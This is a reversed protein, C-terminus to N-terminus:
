AAELEQLDYFSPVDPLDNVPDYTLRYRAVKNGDPLTHAHETTIRFGATRLEKIRAGYRLGGGANVLQLSTVWGPRADRLADAVCQRQTRGAKM